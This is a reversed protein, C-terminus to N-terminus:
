ARITLAGDAPSRPSDIVKFAFILRVGTVIGGINAAYAVGVSEATENGIGGLGCSFQLLTWGGLM